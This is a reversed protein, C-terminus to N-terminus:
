KCTYVHVTCGFLENVMEVSNEHVYSVSDFSIFHIGERSHCLEQYCQRLKAALSCRYTEIDPYPHPLITPPREYIVANTQVELDWPGRYFSLHM